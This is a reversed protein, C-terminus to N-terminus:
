IWKTWQLNPSGAVQTWECSFSSQWNAIICSWGSRDVETIKTRPRFPLMGSLMWCAMPSICKYIIYFANSHMSGTCARVHFLPMYYCTSALVNFAHIYMQYMSCPQVWKTQNIAVAKSLVKRENELKKRKNEYNSGKIISWWVARSSNFRWRFWSVPLGLCGVAIM